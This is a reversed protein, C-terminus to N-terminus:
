KGFSEQDFHELREALKARIEAKVEEIQETALGEREGNRTIEEELKIFGKTIKRRRKSFCERCYPRNIIKREPM